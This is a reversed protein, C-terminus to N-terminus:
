HLSIDILGQFLKSLKPLGVQQASSIYFVSGNVRALIMQCPGMDGEYVAAEGCGAFHSKGFIGLGLLNESAQKSISGNPAYWRVM